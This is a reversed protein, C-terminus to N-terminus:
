NSLDYEVIEMFMYVTCEWNEPFIETVHNIRSRITDMCSPKARLYLRNDDFADELEYNGGLDKEITKVLDSMEDDSWDTIETHFDENIYFRIVLKTFPASMRLLLPSELSM